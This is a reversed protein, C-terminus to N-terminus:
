MSPKLLRQISALNRRKGEDRLTKAIETFYSHNELFRAQRSYREQEGVPADHINLETILHGSRVLFDDRGLVDLDADRMLQELLSAPTESLKTVLILQGIQQIQWPQYDFDRLHERAIRISAAEHNAYQEVSGIDHFLAATQLILLAEDLLGAMTGLHIAAPLVDDKIHHLNHYFLTAPLENALRSFVHEKARECGSFDM